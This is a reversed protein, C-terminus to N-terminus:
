WDINEKNKEPIKAYNNNLYDFISNLTLILNYHCNIYAMAYINKDDSNQYPFVDKPLTLVSKPGSLSGQALSYHKVKVTIRARDEKAEFKAFTTANVLTAKAIGMAQAVNTIMASYEVSNESQNQLAKKYNSYKIKGWNTITQMFQPINLGDKVHVVYQYQIEGDDNLHGFKMIKEARSKNSGKAASNWDQIDKRYEPSDFLNEQAYNGVCYSLLFLAVAFRTVKLTNGNIIATVSVREDNTIRM